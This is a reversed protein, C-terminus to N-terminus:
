LSWIPALRSIAAAVAQGDADRGRVVSGLGPGPNTGTVPAIKGALAFFTQAM